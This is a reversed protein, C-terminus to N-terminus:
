RLVYNSPLFHISQSVMKLRCSLEIATLETSLLTIVDAGKTEPLLVVVVIFGVFSTVEEHPLGAAFLPYEVM